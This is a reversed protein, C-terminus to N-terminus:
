ARWRGTRDIASAAGQDQDQFRESAQRMATAARGLNEAVQDLLEDQRAHRGELVGAIWGCLSGYAQEGGAIDASAGRVAAFRQQMALLNGAHGHLQGAEVRVGNGVRPM